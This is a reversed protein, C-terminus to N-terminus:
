HLKTHPNPDIPIIPRLFTGIDQSNKFSNIQDMKENHIRERREREAKEEAERAERELREKKAAASEGGM